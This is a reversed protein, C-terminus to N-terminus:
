EFIIFDIIKDLDPDYGDTTAVDLSPVVLSLPQFSRITPPRPDHQQLRRRAVRQYALDPDITCQVIKMSALPLLPELGIRWRRDQFAAEAVFTVGSTLLIEIVCFFAEFTRLAVDNRGGPDPQHTLTRHMGENIEDRSVLPCSLAVALARALTSKGSGPRGSIIALTPRRDVYSKTEDM